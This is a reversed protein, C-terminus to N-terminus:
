YFQKASQQLLYVALLRFFVITGALVLWYCLVLDPDSRTSELIRHCAENERPDSSCEYFEEVVMIRTAYTMTCVLQIHSIWKPMLDPSLFFGAFLLQPQFILPMLQTVLKVNDGGLCALCTAQATISMSLMFTLLIYTVYSGSLGVMFYIITVVILVKLAVLIAEFTLHAMLYSFVSYHNTSYERLFIPRQEPYVFMALQVASMMCTILIVMMAGFQSQLSFADLKDASGVDFFILGIFLALTGMIVVRIFVATWDRRVNLSERKFLGLVEELLSISDHDPVCWVSKRDSHVIRGSDVFYGADLLEEM